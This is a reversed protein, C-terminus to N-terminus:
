DFYIMNLLDDFWKHGDFNDNANTTFVTGNALYVIFNGNFMNIAVSGFRQNKYIYDEDIYCLGYVFDNGKDYDKTNLERGYTEKFKVNMDTLDRTGKFTKM